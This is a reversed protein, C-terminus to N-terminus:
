LITNTEAAWCHSEVTTYMHGRERSGGEWERQKGGEPSVEQLCIATRCGPGVKLKESEQTLHLNLQTFVPM